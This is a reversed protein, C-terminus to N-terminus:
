RKYNKELEEYADLFSQFILNGNEDRAELGAQGYQNEFTFWELWEWGEKTYHSLFCDQVIQEMQSITSYKGELLDFGVDYAESIIENYRKYNTLISVFQEYTM